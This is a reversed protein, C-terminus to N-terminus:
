EIECSEEASCGLRVRTIRQSVPDGVYVAEDSVGVNSPWAFGLEPKPAASGPGASDQNGYAGFSGLENGATDLVTVRFRLADPLFVRGFDDVDFRPSACSCGGTYGAISFRNTAFPSLGLYQWLAGKIRLAAGYGAGCEEGGSTPGLPAGMAKHGLLKTPDWTLKDVKENPVWVTGGQPGFKVLSGYLLPYWNTWDPYGVSGDSPLKKGEPVKGQFAAPLRLKGPKAYEAVYINGALDVRVSSGGESLAEVPRAKFRGDPGLVTVRRGCHTAGAYENLVYIDGSRTVFCGRTILHLTGSTPESENRGTGEFPLPRFEHDFRSFTVCWVGPWERDGEKYPGPKWVKKDPLYQSQVYVNGDHGAVLQGTLGKPPQIKTREGTRGDFRATGVYVEERQHDVSLEQVALGQVEGALKGLDVPDGFAQGRDEIRLVSFRAYGTSSGLWLVPQEASADLALMVTYDGHQFTFPIELRAAPRADKWSGFKQIVNLKPGSAVYVAGTKPHVALVEPREVEIRGLFAGDPKFVAVRNNDRDAVYVNGDRDVALGLPTNLRDEGGGAERLKGLFPAPKEDTWKFRYVVQHGKPDAKAHPSCSGSTLGSAYFTEGDPAVALHVYGSGRTLVPGLVNGEPSSGDAARIALPRVLGSGGETIGGQEWGIVTQILRGDPTVAPTQPLPERALPYISRNEGHHVFPHKGGEGLDLVGFGKAGDPFVSAPYPMITRLYKGERSFVKCVTTADGSHANPATTIVLLEGNPAAALGCIRGLAAPNFGIFRDFTPRMGARVRAKFPGGGAAKRLDDQGDWVLDQALGAKLPEPPPSKAGLVGAALHRVVKGDAGLVAVEVDTPASVAFAIKVKGGDRTAVPKATFSVEGSTALPGLILIALVAVVLRM